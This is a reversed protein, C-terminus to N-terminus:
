WGGNPTPAAIGPFQHMRGDEAAWYVPKHGEETETFGFPFLRTAKDYVQISDVNDVDFGTGDAFTIRAGYGTAPHDPEPENDVYESLTVDTPKVARLNATLRAVSDWVDRLPDAADAAAAEIAAKEERMTAHIALQEETADNM